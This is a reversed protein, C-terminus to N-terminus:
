FNGSSCASGLLDSQNRCAELITINVQRLEGSVKEAIDTYIREAIGPSAQLDDVSRQLDQLPRSYALFACYFKIPRVSLLSQWLTHMEEDREAHQM